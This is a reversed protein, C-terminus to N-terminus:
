QECGERLRQSPTAARLRRAAIDDDQFPLLEAVGAQEFAHHIPPPGPILTFGFGQRLCLKCRFAIVAVGISDIRGLQRLDITIRTVGEGCLREIETELSHASRHNLEGTLVLTHARAAPKSRARRLKEVRPGLGVDKVTGRGGPGVAGLPSGEDELTEIRVTSLHREMHHLEKWGPKSNVELARIVLDV